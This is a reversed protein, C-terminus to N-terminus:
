SFSISKMLFVYLPTFQSVNDEALTDINPRNFSETKVRNKFLVSKPRIANTNNTRPINSKNTSKPKVAAIRCLFFMELDSYELIYQIFINMLM